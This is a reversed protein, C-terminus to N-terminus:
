TADPAAGSTTTDSNRRTVGATTDGETAEAPSLLGAQVAKAIDRYVTRKAVGVQEAVEERTPKPKRQLLQVVKTVREDTDGNSKTQRTRATATVRTRRGAAVPQRTRRQRPKDGRGTDGKSDQATDGKRGPQTDGKDGNDDQATDGTDGRGTDGGVLRGGVVRRGTALSVLPVLNAMAERIESRMENMEDLAARAEGKAELGEALRGTELALRDFGTLEKPEEWFSPREVKTLAATNYLAGIQALLQGQKDKDQALGTHEVARDMARDLKVLAARQKRDSAGAERLAKAKKATLAVRTLRRYADVESATRDNSEALGVRVLIREPTIRWNIRAKGTLRQREIAMSREWLWAAVLPAAMRFVAEAFSHADMASLVASLATLAWVALGDLGAKGNERMNRRARVASTVMAVEIFAFLMVQLFGEFGLVDGSFRWMGQASVGTAISAAVVTLVDEAPRPAVWRRWARSIGGFLKRGILYGVGLVVVAAAAIVASSIPNDTVYEFVPTIDM